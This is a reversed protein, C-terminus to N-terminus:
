GRGERRAAREAMDEGHLRDVESEQEDRHVESEEWLAERDLGDDSGFGGGGGLGEDGYPPGSSDDMAGGHLDLDAGFCDEADYHNPQSTRSYFGDTALYEDTFDPDDDYGSGGLSVTRFAKIIVRIASLGGFISVAAVASAGIYLGLQTGVPALDLPAQALITM